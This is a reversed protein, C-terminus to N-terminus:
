QIQEMLQKLVNKRIQTRESFYADRIIHKILEVEGRKLSYASMTEQLKDYLEQNAKKLMKNEDTLNNLLDVWERYSKHKGNDLICKCIPEEGNVLGLKCKLEFRKNETMRM